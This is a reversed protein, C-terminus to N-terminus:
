EACYDYSCPAPNSRGEALRRDRRSGNSLEFRYSISEVQNHNTDHEPWAHSLTVARYRVVDRLKGRESTSWETREAPGSPPVPRTLKAAMKRALGLITLNDKPLGVELADYSKIDQGAPIEANEGQLHFYTNFFRYAQERNDSGYNHASININQHFQFVDEKGYLRFFPKVADFVYPKVLPARFCCNDEANYILLTPRPARMATLTSYDQGTLFDTANQEIDGPEEPLREIRGQLTAYGAVPISVLVRPDLSSLIITQWGGGSLGTVGMRNTDVNPDQALYDLGRRM